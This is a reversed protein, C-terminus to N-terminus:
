IADLLESIVRAYKAGATRRLDNIAEDKTRGWGAFARQAPVPALDLAAVWRDGSRQVRLSPYKEIEFDVLTM